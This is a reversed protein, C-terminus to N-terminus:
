LPFSATPASYLSTSYSVPYSSSPLPVKTYSPLYSGPQQYGYSGSTTDINLGGNPIYTTAFSSYSPLYPSPLSVNPPFDTVNVAPIKPLIDISNVSVIKKLKRSKVSLKRNRTQITEKKMKLPRDAKHLKFYLGCANCITDGKDNRRWLTTKKTGCNKCSMNQNPSTALRRKPKTLPRPQGHQKFYIGCANCQYNGAKDRRWLPTSTAGCNSCERGKSDKGSPKVKSTVSKAIENLSKIGNETDMMGSAFQSPYLPFHVSGESISSAESISSPPKFASPRDSSYSPLKAPPTDLDPYYVKPEKMYGSDKFVNNFSDHKDDFNNESRYLKRYSDQSLDDSNNSHEVTSLQTFKTASSGPVSDTSDEDPPTPPFNFNGLSAVSTSNQDSTSLPPTISPYSAETSVNMNSFAQYDYNSSYLNGGKIDHSWEPILNQGKTDYASFPLFSHQPQPRHMSSTGLQQGYHYHQFGTYDGSPYGGTESLKVHQGDFTKPLSFMDSFDKSPLVGSKIMETGSDVAPWTIPKLDAIEMKIIRIEFLTVFQESHKRVLILSKNM